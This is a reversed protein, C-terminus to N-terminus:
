GPSPTEVGPEVVWADASTEGGAVNGGAILAGGSPLATVTTGGWSSCDGLGEIPGIKTLAMRDVDLVYADISECHQDVLILVRGDALVTLPAVPGAPLDAVGDVVGDPERRVIRWSNRTIGAAAVLARGGPSSTVYGFTLDTGDMAPTVLISAPDLIVPGGVPGIGLELRERGVLIRGDSLVTASPQVWSLDPDSPGAAYQRTTPDYYEVDPKAAASGVGLGPETEGGIIAVRGDPLLVAAHGARRTPMVGAPTFTGANPDFLEASTLLSGGQRGGLILVRGDTLRTASHGSRGESMRGNTLTFSRTKPDYVEATYQPGRDPPYGNDGGAILIRGDSLAVASAGSRTVSMMDTAHITLTAPIPTRTMRSGVFTAAVAAIVLLGVLIPILWRRPADGTARRVRAEVAFATMAAPDVNVPADSAYASLAVRLQMEFTPRDSM